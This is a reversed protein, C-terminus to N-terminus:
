NLYFLLVQIIFRSLDLNKHNTLWLFKERKEMFAQKKREKPKHCM